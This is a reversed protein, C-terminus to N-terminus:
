RFLEHELKFHEGSEKGQYRFASVVPTANRMKEWGVGLSFTYVRAKTGNCYAIQTTDSSPYVSHQDSLIVNVNSNVSYFLDNAAAYNRFTGALALNLGDSVNKQFNASGSVRVKPVARLVPIIAPLAAHSRFTGKTPNKLCTTGYGSM